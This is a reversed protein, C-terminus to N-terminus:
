NNTITAIINASTTDVTFLEVKAVVNSAIPVVTSAKNNNANPLIINATGTPNVNKIFLVKEIGPSITGNVTITVNANVNYAVRTTYGLRLNTSIATVNSSRFDVVNYSQSLINDINVGVGSSTIYSNGTTMNLNGSMRVSSVTSLSGALDLNGVNSISALQTALGDNYVKLGDTSSALRIRANGTLYDIAIGNTFTTDSSLNSSITIGNAAGMGANAIVNGGSYVSGAIGAGGGVVLAGTSTSTSSTNQTFSVATSSINGVVHETNSGGVVFTITKSATNANLLLNGGNAILYSDNPQIATFGEYYYGSSAIGLDVYYSADDGNDATAVFDTSAHTLSNKNQMVMQVYANANGGYQMAAGAPVFTLTQGLLVNGSISLNNAVINGEGSIISGLYSFNNNTKTFSVLLSDGTGDNAVNGTNIRELAM